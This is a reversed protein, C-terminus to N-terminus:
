AVPKFFSDPVAMDQAFDDAGYNLHCNHQGLFAETDWRSAHGLFQGVQASTWLGDNYRAIAMSELLDKQLADGQPLKLSAAVAEPIQITVSVDM